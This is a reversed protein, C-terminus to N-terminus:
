ASKTKPKKAPGIKGAVARGDQASRVRQHADWGLVQYKGTKQPPYDALIKTIDTTM